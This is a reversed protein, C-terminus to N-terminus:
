LNSIQADIASNNGGFGAAAGGLATAALGGEGGARAKTAGSNLGFEPESSSLVV